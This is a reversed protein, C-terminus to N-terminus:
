RLRSRLFHAVHEELNHLNIDLTRDIGTLENSNKWLQQHDLKIADLNRQVDPIDKRQGSVMSLMQENKHYYQRVDQKLSRVAVLGSLIGGSKGARGKREPALLDNAVCKWKGM